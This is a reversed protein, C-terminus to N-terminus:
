GLIEDLLKHKLKKLTEKQTRAEEALAICKDLIEVMAKQTEIDPLKFTFDDLDKWNIYPNTSGKSKAISYKTFRESLMIHKLFDQLLLHQKAKVVFTTNACVGKFDALAVKRLYTRRSGYLIDGPEFMVHFAPGLFDVGVTGWTRVKFDEAELNEGAVIREIGEEVPDIRRMIKDVCDKWFYEKLPKNHLLEGFEYKDIYSDILKKCLKRLNGEQAETQGIQKELTLFLSLIKEQEDKPPLKIQFKALDKWKTRPSLSGASTSVAYDIFRDSAVIFPILDSPFGNKSRFVLIDGSCIGDFDALAVKKLYSRRKGFLTDSSKFVKTFTTSESNLDGWRTLKLNGSDIHDLSIFRDVENSLPDKDHVNINQVIDGFESDKWIGKKLKM